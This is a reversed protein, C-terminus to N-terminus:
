AITQFLRNIACLCKLGSTGPFMRVTEVRCKETEGMKRQWSLVTQLLKTDPEFM